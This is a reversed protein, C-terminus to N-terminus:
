AGGVAKLLVQTTQQMVAKDPQEGTANMAVDVM